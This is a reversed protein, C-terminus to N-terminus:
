FTIIEYGEDRYRAMGPHGSMEDLLDLGQDAAEQLTGMKKSCAKCVGAVLGAAVTKQWLGALPHGPKVL